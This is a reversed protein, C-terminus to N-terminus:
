YGQLLNEEEADKGGAMSEDQNDCHIFSIFYSVMSLEGSVVFLCVVSWLGSVKNDATRQRDDILENEKM